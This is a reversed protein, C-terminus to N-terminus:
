LKIRIMWLLDELPIFFFVLWKNKRVNNIFRQGWNEPLAKFYDYNYWAPM